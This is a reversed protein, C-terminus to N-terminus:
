VPSSILIFALFTGFNIAPLAKFSATLYTWYNKGGLAEVLNEDGTPTKKCVEDHLDLSKKM